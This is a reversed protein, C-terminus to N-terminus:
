PNFGQIFTFMFMYVYTLFLLVMQTAYTFAANTDISTRGIEEFTNGLRDLVIVHYPGERRYWYVKPIGSLGSIAQYVSYKHALNSSSDQTIELKLAIDQETKIDKWPLCERYPNSYRTRCSRLVFTGFAGFGCGLPKGM